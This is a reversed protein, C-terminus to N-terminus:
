NLIIIIIIIKTENELISNCSNNIYKPSYDGKPQKM